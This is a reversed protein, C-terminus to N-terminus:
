LPPLGVYQWVKLPFFTQLVLAPFIPSGQVVLASQAWVQGDPPPMQVVVHVVSACHLVL